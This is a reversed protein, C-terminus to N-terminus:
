YGCYWCAVSLRVSLVSHKHEVFLTKTKTQQGRSVALLTSGTTLM